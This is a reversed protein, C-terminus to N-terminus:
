KPKRAFFSAIGEPVFSRDATVLVSLIEVQGAPATLNITHHGAGLKQMPPGGPGPLLDWFAPAAVGPGLGGVLDWRAWWDRPPAADISYRVPPPQGARVQHLSVWIIVEAAEPLDVAVEVPTQKNVPIAKLIAPAKPTKVRVAPSAPSENGAADVATV